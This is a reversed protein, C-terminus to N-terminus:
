QTLRRLKNFERVCATCDEHTQILEKSEDVKKDPDDAFGMMWKGCLSRSMGAKEPKPFIHFKRSQDPQQHNHTRM